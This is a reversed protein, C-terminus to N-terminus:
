AGSKQSRTTILDILVPARGKWSQEGHREKQRPCDFWTQALKVPFVRQGLTVRRM